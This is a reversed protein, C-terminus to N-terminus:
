VNVVHPVMIKTDAAPAVDFTIGTTTKTIGTTVATVVGAIAKYVSYTNDPPQLSADFVFADEVGDAVWTTLRPPYLSFGKIVGASTVGDNDTSLAEGWPLKTVANPAMTYRTEYNNDAFSGRQPIMTTSTVFQFHWGTVGTSKKAAQYVLLGVSPESGAKDTQSPM